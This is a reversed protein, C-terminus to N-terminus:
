GITIMEKPISTLLELGDPGALAMDEVRVGGTGPIYIGPEITFVAGEEMIDESLPYVSPEEHVSLGVGHGLGHGFYKGFGKKEIHKRAISDIQKLAMEPKAEEIVMDHADLVVQYIEELVKSIKGLAVTVTTDCNYGEFSAGFDITVLEGKRLVKSSARAHPMAGRVGSAVIVEFPLLGSGAGRIACELELAWEDEKVGPKLAPLTKKFAKEAIGVAKKIAAIESDAKRVRLLDIQRDIPVLVASDLAELFRHYLNYSVYRSEFGVKMLRLERIRKAVGEVPRKYEIVRWDPCEQGAQETYRSDTFFYLGQEETTILITSDSGTFGSLYRTNERSTILLADLDKKSILEYARALALPLSM